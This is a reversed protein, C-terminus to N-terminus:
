SRATTFLVVAYLCVQPLLEQFINFLGDEGNKAIFGNGVQTQVTVATAFSAALEKPNQVPKIQRRTGALM